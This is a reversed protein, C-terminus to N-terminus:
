SGGPVILSAMREGTGADRRHSAFWEPHCSTCLRAMSIRREDVGTGVLRGLVAEWLDLHPRDGFGPRLVSGDFQSAVEDGVEYCCAGISPGVAAMLRDPRSRYEDWLRRPGAEVVGALIGKWGAHVAGVAGGEPDWLLLPVCDATRIAPALGHRDSVVADAERPFGEARDARVVEAGHQQDLLVPTAASEMAELLTAADAPEGDPDSRAGFAHLPGGASDFLPSTFWRSGRSEHLTFEM